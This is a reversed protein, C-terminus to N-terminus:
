RSVKVLAEPNDECAKLYDQVFQIFNDYTGWGNPSDYKKYYDEDITLKLLGPRLLFVLEKAKTIGLEEPRWIAHYIGAMEAMIILNHTINASYVAEVSRGCHACKNTHLSVDLSM